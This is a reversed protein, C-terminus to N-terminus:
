LLEIQSGQKEKAAKKFNLDPDDEPHEDTQHRIAVNPIM